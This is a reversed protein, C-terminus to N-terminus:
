SIMDLVFVIKQVYSRRAWMAEFEAPTWAKPKQPIIEWENFVSGIGAFGKWGPPPTLERILKEEAKAFEEDLFGAFMKRLEQVLDVPEESM